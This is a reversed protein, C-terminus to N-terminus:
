LVGEICTVDDVINKVWLAEAEVRGLHGTLVVIPEVHAAQAMLVDNKADGVMVTEAPPFGLEDMIMTLMLPNPKALSPDPLDYASLIKAFVDPIGFHPMVRTRLLGGHMGTAIALTYKQSLRALFDATGPLISLHEVFVDGFLKQEYIECARDLLKPHEKLLEKLEERHTQGWKELIRRHEEAPELWVGLEELAQHYCAFYGEKSGLTFVDDWDFVILEKM